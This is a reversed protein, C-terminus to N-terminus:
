PHKKQNSTKQFCNLQKKKSCSGWFQSTKQKQRYNTLNIYQTRVSIHWFSRYSAYAHSLPKQCFSLNKNSDSKKQCILIRLVRLIRTKTPQFLYSLTKLFFSSFRSKKAVNFNWESRFVTGQLRVNWIVEFKYAGLQFSWDIMYFTRKCECPQGNSNRLLCILFKQNELEEWFINWRWSFEKWIRELVEQRFQEFYFTQRQQYKSSLRIKKGAGRLKTRLKTNFCPKLSLKTNM